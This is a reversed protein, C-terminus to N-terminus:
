VGTMLFIEHETGAKNIKLSGQLIKWDTSLYKTHTKMLGKISWM